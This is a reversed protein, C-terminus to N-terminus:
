HIRNLYLLAFNFYYTMLNGQRGYKQSIKDPGAVKRNKIKKFVKNLEDQTFQGLKIDLQSNIIKIIPKKTVKTLKWSSEQFTIMVDTKM